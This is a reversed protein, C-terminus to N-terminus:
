PADYMVNSWRFWGDTVVASCNGMIGGPLTKVISFTGDAEVPTTFNGCPGSFQVYDGPQARATTGHFVYTNGNTQFVEFTLLDIDFGPGQSRAM